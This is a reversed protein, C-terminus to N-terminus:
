IIQITVDRELFGILSELFINPQEYMSAHGCNSLEKYTSQKIKNSIVKGHKAPTLIDEDSSVIQTKIKIEKLQDYIDYSESSNILRIMGDMFKKNLVEKLSVLRKEFWDINENYFNKSYIWPMTTYFFTEPDYTEAAKIWSKGIHSLIPSTEYTVNYAALKRLYNPAKLAIQLAIEGGYSIGFLDYKDFSLEKMLGLVMEIQLSHDYDLGEGTDSKGQDIFDLLIVQRKKTLPKIFPLWSAQSMMIGNLIILPPFEKAEGKIQYDITLNNLTFKAM